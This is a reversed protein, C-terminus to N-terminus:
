PALKRSYGAAVEEGRDPSGCLLGTAIARNYVFWVAWPPPVLSGCSDVGGAGRNNGEKEGQGVVGLTGSLAGQTVPVAEGRGGSLHPLPRMEM